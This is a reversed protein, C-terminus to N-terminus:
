LRFMNPFFLRLSAKQIRFGPAESGAKTPGSTNRVLHPTAGALPSRVLLLLLGLGGSSLPLWPFSKCLGLSSNTM